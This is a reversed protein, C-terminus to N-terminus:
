SRSVRVPAANRKVPKTWSGRNCCGRTAEWLITLRKKSPKVSRTTFNHALLPEPGEADETTRRMKELLDNLESQQQQVDRGIQEREGSGRLSSSREKALREMRDALEQEQRALQKADKQM